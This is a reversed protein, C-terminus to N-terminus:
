AEERTAVTTSSMNVELLVDALSAHRVLPSLAFTISCAPASGLVEMSYTTYRNWEREVRGEAWLLFNRSSLLVSLTASVM